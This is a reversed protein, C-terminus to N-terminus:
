VFVRFDVIVSYLALLRKRVIAVWPHEFIRLSFFLGQLNLDSLSLAFIALTFFLDIDYYLTLRFLTRLLGFM